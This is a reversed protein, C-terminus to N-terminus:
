AHAANIAGEVNDGESRAFPTGDWRLGAAEFRHAQKHEEPTLAILEANVAHFEQWRGSLEADAFFYALGYQRLPVTQPDLGERAVFTRILTSFTWPAAHHIQANQVGAGFRVEMIQEAIEQRSAARFRVLQPNAEFGKRYSWAEWHEGNGWVPTWGYHEHGDHFRRERVFWAPQETPYEGRQDHADLSAMLIEFAVDDQDRRVTEPANERMPAVRRLLDTKNKFCERALVTKVCYKCRSQGGGIIKKCGPFRSSLYDSKKM